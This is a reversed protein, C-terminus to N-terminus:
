IDVGTFRFSGHEVKSVKLSKMIMSEFWDLFSDTGAYFFDDVHIVVQGALKGDVRYYFYANDSPLLNMDNKLFLRKVRLYFKRSSNTQM